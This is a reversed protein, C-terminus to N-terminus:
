ILKKKMNKLQELLEELRQLIELKNHDKIINEIGPMFIQGILRAELLQCCIDLDFDFNVGTAFYNKLIGYFDQSNIAKNQPLGVFKMESQQWILLSYIVEILDVYYIGTYCLDFDILANIRKDKFLINNGRFDNHLVVQKRQQFQEIVQSNIQQLKALYYKVYAKIEAEEEASVSELNQYDATGVAFANNFYRTQFKIPHKIDGVKLYAPKKIVSEYKLALQHYEGLFSAIEPIRLRNEYDRADGQHPIYEQLEFILGNDKVLKHGTKDAIIHPVPFNNKNLYDLFQYNSLLNASPIYGPRFKLLYNNGATIVQYTGQNYLGDNIEVIQEIKAIQYNQRLLNKINAM